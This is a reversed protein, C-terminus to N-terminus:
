IENHKKTSVGTKTSKLQTPLKIGIADLLEKNLSSPKPISYGLSTNKTHLEHICISQLSSLGEKVTLDLDKWYHELRRVIQYALMVIFVHGKTRDEKRVHIPRLELNSKCTRFASEVKSLDKYRGHIQEKDALDKSVNTKIAYCGDFRSIGELKESDIVIQFYNGDEELDVFSELSLKELYEQVKNKATETRARPHYKLYTIQKEVFDQLAELKSQRSKQIEQERVPNRRLIYRIDGDEIESLVEEFLEMQIIGNKELTQIQQNTIATIYTLEKQEIEEIQPGKIMGRDGVLTIGKSEFRKCIKVLQNSFTKTDNTNGPFVEISVPCGDQDCLLGIVIQKKNKKGDRNYGFASLENHEGELYSSTVDYLFLQPQTDSDKYHSRILKEEITNQNEALWNLNEYLHNENFDKTISLVETLSHIKNLRIASLRSGQELVRAYVQYLALKGADTNGLAKKIGLEKAIQDIVWVSGVSKGQTAEVKQDILSQLNQKHKLALKLANIEEDPLHSINLITRHKVKGGERFSERLLHRTYKGTKCSDVYM